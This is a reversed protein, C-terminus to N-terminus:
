FAPAALEKEIQSNADDLSQLRLNFGTADDLKQGPLQQLGNELHIIQTKQLTSGSCWDEVVWVRQVYFGEKNQIIEDTWSLDFVDDKEQLIYQDAITGLNGDLDLFPFGTLNPLVQTSKQTTQTSEPFFLQALSAKEVAIFQTFTSENGVEDSATWKREVVGMSNTLFKFNAIFDHLSSTTTETAPLYIKLEDGASLPTSFYNANSTEWVPAEANTQVGFLNSGGINRWDFTIFGEAPIAIQFQTLGNAPVKSQAINAGEVLISNPAGTVDVGGDGKVQAVSWRDPAFYNTFGESLCGLLHYQDEGKLAVSLNCSHSVTPKEIEEVKTRDKYFVQFHKGVIQLQCNTEKAIPNTYLFTASSSNALAANAISFAVFANIALIHLPRNSKMPNHIQGM